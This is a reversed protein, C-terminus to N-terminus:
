RRPSATMKLVLMGMGACHVHRRRHRYTTTIAGFVLDGAAGVVIWAEKRLVSVAFASPSSRIPPCADSFTRM